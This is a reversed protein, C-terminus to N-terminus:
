PPVAEHTHVFAAERESAVLPVDYMTGVSLIMMQSRKEEVCVRLALFGAVWMGFSGERPYFHQAGIGAFLQALMLSLALGGVAAYLRNDNRFLTTSYVIMMGFLAFIPMSGLIGNDLLTELYMNHPHPFSERFEIWLQDRLGTRVMALRGYGVWPSEGIKEIVYPWIITRGSTISNDDITTQGAVDTQGFGQLMRETVGPLVIPLLVVVMPALILYKRWKLLCLVLGTAGWAVYGARGGTLAQGFAVIGGAALLMIWYKRRRVWSLAALIGWSAGALVASLDCASYGIGQCVRLRTRVMEAGGGGLASQFPMNRVVQISILIYVTLVCVLAIVVQKRTRCGDFLLVGPLVWKVTNVLEESILSGLSYGELHSRNFAARLVGVVIVGLCMLLLVSIHRPMDWLDLSRRRRSAAWSLLISAFLINWPNLGQIGLINTPMDEHLMVAMMLILGCLSKFWDKWAYISLAAVLVTLATVRISM